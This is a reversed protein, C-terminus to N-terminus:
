ERLREMLAPCVSGSVIGGFQGTESAQNEFHNWWHLGERFLTLAGVVPLFAAWLRLAQGTHGIEHALVECASVWDSAGAAARLGSDRLRGGAVELPRDRSSPEAAQERVVEQAFDWGVAVIEATWTICYGRWLPWGGDRDRRHTAVVDIVRWDTEHRAKGYIRFAPKAGFLRHCRTLLRM